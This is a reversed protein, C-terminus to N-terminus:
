WIHHDNINSPGRWILRGVQNRGVLCPATSWSAHYMTRHRGSLSAPGIVSLLRRPRVVDGGRIGSDCRDSEWVSRRRKGTPTPLERNSDWGGFVVVEFSAINAAVAVGYM